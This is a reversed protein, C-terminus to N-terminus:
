GNKANPNLPYCKINHKIVTAIPMEETLQRKSTIIKQQIVNIYTLKGRNITKLVTLVFRMDLIVIPSHPVSAMDM